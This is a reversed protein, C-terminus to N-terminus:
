QKGEERDLAISKCLGYGFYRGGGLVLPGGIACPFIIRAHTMLKAQGNKRILPPFAAGTKGQRHGCQESGRLFPVRSVEVRVPQPLGQNACASAVGEALWEGLDRSGAKAMRDMVIPTVSAWAVSDRCWTENRLTMPVSSAAVLGLRMEGKQGLNLQLELDENLANAAAQYLSEETDADLGKPFALAMGLLRGDAHEHGVNAMPLFAMHTEALVSGDAKHGSTLALARAGATDAKAMILSRFAKALDLTQPLTFTRGGVQRFVMIPAAFAGSVTSPSRVARVYPFQRALPPPAFVGSDVSRKYSASLLSLRGREMVRLSSEGRFATGAPLYDTEPITDSLWCRVLSSSHGIRQVAACLRSLAERHNEELPIEWGIACISDGVFTSPFSREKKPRATPLLGKLRDGYNAGSWERDSAEIDNVPVFHPVAEAKSPPDAAAILPPGLSEIWELAKRESEDEGREGWAAVLAQFVRDPHPPWEPQSRDAFDTAVCRGTLYQWAISFM